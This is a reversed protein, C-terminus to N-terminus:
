REGAAVDPPKGPLPCVWRVMVLGSSSVPEGDVRLPAPCPANQLRGLIVVCPSVFWSSVDYTHTERRHLPTLPAASKTMYQPQELMSFVGVAELGGPGDFSREVRGDATAARSYRGAMDAFLRDGISASAPTLVNLDLAEGAKWGGGDPFVPTWASIVAPPPANELRGSRLPTQGRVLLIRVDTLAAPMGHTLVGRLRTAEGTDVLHPPDGSPQPMLWAPGGLWDARFEKVTSRTPFTVTDPKPASVRYVRADPFSAQAPSVPREWPALADHREESGDGVTLTSEGYSPILAGFWVRARQVPQGYVHDLLTVHRIEPKTPRSFTAGGWALATFVGALLVFVPWARREARRWKLLRFGVPGALLLYVAFVGLGTLVGVAAKGSRVVASAIGTDLYVPENRLSNLGGAERLARLDDRTRVDFRKGLVRHWFAQANVRSGVQADGLDLGILMVSGAGHIRRAAVTGGGKGHFIPTADDAQASDIPSMLHVATRSPMPAPDRAGLLVRFPELDARDQRRVTVLPLLDHIPNSRATTWQQGVSPLCVVLRGGRQVWERLAQAQRDRLEGPDGALWVLAEYPALGLWRDPLSQPTLDTIVQTLENATTPLTQGEMVTTYDLLGGAPSKGIVGIMGAGAEIIKKPTVGLSGLLRGTARGTAAASAEAGGLDVVTAAFTTGSELTWPLPLYIWVNQPVGPNITVERQMSLTDGDPDRRAIRVSVARPRDGRDTLRLRVGAWDGPRAADGVGFQDVAIEVEDRRASDAPAGQGLSPRPIWAAM